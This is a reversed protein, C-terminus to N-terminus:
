CLTASLRGLLARAEGAYGGGFLQFHNLVHYLQYVLRREAWGPRPAHAAAHAAFFDRSFGGFLAAMALDCEPDGAHVAPDFLTPKGAVFGRNGSWLDGHLLAAAPPNNALLREIEPWVALAKELLWPAGRAAAAELQPRLRRQCFFRPWDNDWANQQISSGLYNDRHWGFRPFHSEHLAALAEGLRADSGVAALDQWELVMFDVEPAQGLVVVAPVRLAPCRALAQLGDAEAAFQDGAGRGLKAFFRLGSGALRLNESICGGSVPLAQELQFPRGISRSLASELAQRTAPSPM